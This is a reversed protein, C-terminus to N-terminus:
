GGLRSFFDVSNSISGDGSSSATCFSYRRRAAVSHAPVSGSIACAASPDRCRQDAPTRSIASADGILSRRPASRLGVEVAGRDIGPRAQGRVRRDAADAGRHAGAAVLHAARQEVPQRRIQAAARSSSAPQPVPASDTSAARRPAWTTAISRDGVSTSSARSACGARDQRRRSRTGRRAVHEVRCKPPEVVHDGHIRQDVVPAAVSDVHTAPSAARVRTM